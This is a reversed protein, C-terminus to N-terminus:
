GHLEGRRVSEQLFRVRAPTPPHSADFRQHIWTVSWQPVQVGMAQIPELRELARIMSDASTLQAGFLDARHEAAPSRKALLLMAVKGVTALFLEIVLAILELVFTFEQRTREAAARRFFASLRGLMHLFSGGMMAPWGDRATLHALEHAVIATIEDQPFRQLLGRNLILLGRPTAVSLVGPQDEHLVALVPLRKLGLSEAAAALDAQFAEWDPLDWKTLPRILLERGWMSEEGLFSSLTLWLWPILLLIVLWDPLFLLPVFCLGLALVALFWQLLSAGVLRGM